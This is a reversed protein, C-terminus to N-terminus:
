RMLPDASFEKIRAARSQKPKRKRAEQEAEKIVRGIAKVGASAQGYVHAVYPIGSEPDLGYVQQLRLFEKRAEPYEADNDVFDGLPEVADDGFTFELIAIEWPLVERNYTTREDRKVKVREYRM